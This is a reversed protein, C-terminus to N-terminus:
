QGIAISPPVMLLLRALPGSHMRLRALASAGNPAEYVPYDGLELATHLTRRVNDDEDPLTTHQCM